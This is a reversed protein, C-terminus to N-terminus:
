IMDLFLDVIRPHQGVPRTIVMKVRPFRKQAEKIIRPIDGDVHRGSNLFNLLVVIETAGKRVCLDVGEPISPSELELFAYECIPIDCNKKLKALLVKVEGLTEKSRSGHSVILISKM